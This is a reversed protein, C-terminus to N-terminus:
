GHKVYEEDSGLTDKQIHIDFALLVADADYTDEIAGADRFVRGMLMSSISLGTGPIEGIDLVQHKGEGAGAQHAEIITTNTPFTGNIGAVAYELGWQVHGTTGDTPTWHVHCELTSGEVYSHPLQLAFFLEEETTKDFHYAYVGTSGSGDTKWQQFGPDRAAGIKTATTPVTVDDWQVFNEYKM